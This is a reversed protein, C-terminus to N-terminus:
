ERPALIKVTVKNVFREGPETCPMATECCSEEACGVESKGESCCSKSQGEALALTGACCSGTKVECTATSAECCSPASCDREESIAVMGCCSGCSGSQHARWLGPAAWATLGVLCLGVVLTLTSKNM